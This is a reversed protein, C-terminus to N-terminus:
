VQELLSTEERSEGTVSAHGDRVPRYVTWAGGRDMREIESLDITLPDPMADIERQTTAARTITLAGAVRYVSGHPEGAEKQDLDAMRPPNTRSIGNVPLHFAAVGSEQGTQRM